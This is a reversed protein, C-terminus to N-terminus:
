FPSSTTIVRNSGWFFGCLLAADGRPAERTTNYLNPCISMTQVRTCTIYTRVLLIVGLSARNCVVHKKDTVCKIAHPSLTHWFVPFVNEVCFVFPFIITGGTTLSRWAFTTTLLCYGRSFGTLPMCEDTGTDCRKTNEGSFVIQLVFYLRHTSTSKQQQQPGQSLQQPRKGTLHSRDHQYTVSLTAEYKVHEKSSIASQDDRRIVKKNQCVKSELKQVYVGHDCTLTTGEEGEGAIAKMRKQAYLEAGVVSRRNKM